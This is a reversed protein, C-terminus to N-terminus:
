INNANIIKKNYCKVQAMYNDDINILLSFPIFITDYLYCIIQM